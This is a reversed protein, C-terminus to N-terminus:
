QVCATRKRWVRPSMGFEARFARNFNAVDGFGSELAVDLIKERGAACRAAAQRLRARRVYQHPTVGTLEQFLRLFHYRSLRAERALERLPLGAAPDGDIRRVARSVRAMASPPADVRRLSGESDLEVARGALEVAIEEWAAGSSALAGCARAVIPALEGVPPLRLSRFRRGKGLGEFFEASYAFAVCRDGAGHEHGCEFCQGRNGLLLSGATMLERGCDNRCQFSGAAVVAIRYHSHREEFARDGPGSTCVV